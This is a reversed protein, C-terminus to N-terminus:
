KTLIQNYITNLKEIKNEWNFEKAREFAGKALNIRSEENEYIYNIAKAIDHIVQKEKHIPIKIGCQHTIVNSFGCHDLAIVPLGLSLAELLVTSTLDSLSTICFLHSSQMIEVAENREIWGHWVINTLHYKEALKKWKNTRKGEGIIHAEIENKYTSLYLAEILLNLSKGPTHQGSWCIKLKGNRGQSTSFFNYNLLGVEPIIESDIGWLAKVKDHNDQTATIITSSNHACERIRKGHMQKLNILNRCFYFICGYWEMSPLMRWPTLNMGGIPGWVFPKNLKWLYGPERYGVMNLQHVIDFNEKKDLEIALKFAQEQWKKYFWYYSPPWIKRLLRQREKAIFHFTINKRQEPFEKFYKELEPEWKAKETIVHLEHHKALNIIFNWGMGPESGRYPSCCYCNLLIKYHKQM